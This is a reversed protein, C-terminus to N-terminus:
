RGTSLPTEGSDVAPFGAGSCRPPLGFRTRHTQHRDAEIDVLGRERRRSRRRRGRRDLQQVPLVAVEYGGSFCSVQCQAEPSMDGNTQQHGSQDGVRVRILWSGDGVDELQSVEPSIQQVTLM